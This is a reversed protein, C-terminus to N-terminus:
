DSSLTYSTEDIYIATKWDILFETPSLVQIVDDPGTATWTGDGNDVVIVTAGNNFFEILEAPLPLRASAFANGYLIDEIKALLYKDLKTSDIIFHSSPRRGQVVIPVTSIAWSLALPEVSAGNSKYAYASPAAMANYVLHIKYGYGKGVIDNGLGTRYSLGFAQRSQQAIALGRGLNATGDIAEFEDPYTYASLTAIFDEAEAYQNVKVGDVYFSSITGGDSSQDVSILGNWPVGSLGLPYLVGRDVGAEFIRDGVADWALKTM